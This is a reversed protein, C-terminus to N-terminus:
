REREQYLKKVAEYDEPTNVGRNIFNTKITGISYGQELIRLQEIDEIAELGVRPFNYPIPSRSLYLIRGHVDTVVKGVSPDAILAPEEIKFSPIVVDFKGTHFLDVCDDIVSAPYFPEDGWVTVVTDPVFETFLKIAEATRETGNMHEKISRIVKAGFSRALVEIEESDTAIVLADLKKAQATREYARQILPKGWIDKLMKKPVRTSGIRASIVGLVKQKKYDNYM